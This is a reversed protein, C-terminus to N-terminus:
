APSPGAQEIIRVIDGVTRIDDRDTPISVKFEEEALFVLEILSFSDLGVEALPADATLREVDVPIREAVTRRLRQLIEDRSVPTM